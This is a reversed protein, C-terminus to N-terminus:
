LLVHTCQPCLQGLHRLPARIPPNLWTVRAFWSRVKSQCCDEPAMTIWAGHLHLFTAQECELGLMSSHVLVCMSQPWSCSAIPSCGAEVVTSPFPPPRRHLWSHLLHHGVLYGSYGYGMDKKCCIVCGRELASTIESVTTAATAFVVVVYAIFLFPNIGKGM